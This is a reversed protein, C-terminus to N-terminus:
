PLAHMAPRRDVLTQPTLGPLLQEARDLLSVFVSRLLILSPENQQVVLSFLRVPHHPVDGVGDRDLDYGRYDDYYNGDFAATGGSGNTAVDFTNGTFTNRTFKGGDANAMLKVAWGNDVFRNGTAELRAAGDAFLGVTNHSFVNRTLIPDAIEKLLLGYSAPGWNDEFRNGTMEVHRTYMVAVGAGNRRFVNEVYRCDDSFMFHLGYRLNGGSLNNRVVTNRVFEFYIGDRHGRVRNGAILVDHSSWLHIGNGTYEETRTEGALDNGVIRCNWAGALYIGFFTRDFRNGEVACGSVRAIRLAARDEIQSQGTNTFHLGRITVGDAKVRVIEHRGQGDLTPWGEGQIVVPHTVDIPPERYTGAKVVVTGGAEVRRLGEAVTRVPGNPSVVVTRQARVIAPTLL